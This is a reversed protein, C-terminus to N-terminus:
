LKKNFMKFIDKDVNSRVRNKLEKIKMLMNTQNIKEKNHYFIDEKENNVPLTFTENNKIEMEKRKFYRNIAKNKYKFNNSIKEFYDNLYKKNKLYNEKKEFKFYNEPKINEKISSKKFPKLTLKPENLNDNDKDKNDSNNNNDNIKIIDLSNELEDVKEYLNKFNKKIIKINPFKTFKYNYMTNKNNSKYEKNEHSNYLEKLDSKQDDLYGIYKKPLTLNKRRYLNDTVRLLSLGDPNTYNYNIKRKIFLNKDRLSLATKNKMFEKKRSRLKMSDFFNKIINAECEEKYSFFTIGKKKNILKEYNNINYKKSHNKRRENNRDKFINNETNIFMKKNRINSPEKITNTFVSLNRINSIMPIEENKKEIYNNNSEKTGILKSYNM